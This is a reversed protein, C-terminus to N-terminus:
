DMVPVGLEDLLSRGAAIRGVGLNSDELRPSAVSSPLLNGVALSQQVSITAFRSGLFSQNTLSVGTQRSM